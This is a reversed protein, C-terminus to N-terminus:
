VLAVKKIKAPAVSPGFYHTLVGNEDVLYKGFNWDPEHDNWGNRRSNTLWQFVPNADPELVSSKAALPFSIHY